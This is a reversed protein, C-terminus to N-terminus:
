KLEIRSPLAEAVLDFPRSAAGGPSVVRGREATVPSPLWRIRLYGDADAAGAAAALFNQHGLWQLPLLADPEPVPAGEIWHGDIVDLRAGAAPKGDVTVQVRWTAFPRRTWELSHPEDGEVLSVMGHAFGDRDCAFLWWRGPALLLTARGDAGTVTLPECGHAELLQLDRPSPMAIVHMGAVARDGDVVRLTVTRTLALDIEQGSLRTLPVCTEEAADSAAAVVVRLESADAPVNPFVARGDEGTTAEGRWPQVACELAAGDFDVSTTRAFLQVRRAPVPKGARLVTVDFPTAAALTVVLVAGDRRGSGTVRGDALGRLQATAYGAREWRLTGVFANAVSAGGARPLRVTLKGDTSTEGLRRSRWDPRVHLPAARLDDRQDFEHHVRVGALAKGQEDEIRLAVVVPPPMRVHIGPAHRPLRDRWLVEDTATRMELMAEGRPLPPVTATGRGDVGLQWPWSRATPLLVFARLPGETRWEDQGDVHIALAPSPELRWTGLPGAGRWEVVDTAADATSAFAIWHAAITAPLTFAGDGASRLTVVDGPEGGLLPRVHVTAAVGRGNGDVITGSRPLPEQTTSAVALSFLVWVQVLSRM